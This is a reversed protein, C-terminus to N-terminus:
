QDYSRVFPKEVAAKAGAEGFWKTVLAPWDKSLPVLTFQGALHVSDEAKVSFEPGGGKNGRGSLVANHAVIVEADRREVAVDSPQDTVLAFGAGAADTLLAVEVERRNGQFRIDDRQLHHLGFDNLRDKGPYGANPGQGLWRFETASTALALGGELFTGTAHSPAFDYRVDLTGDARAVLVVDGEVFQEPTNPREYRGHVALRISGDRDTTSSVDVATPAALLAGTWISATKARLAEAETLKRGTHPGVGSVVVRGAPDLLSIAGTTRNVRLDYRSSQVRLEDATEKLQPAASKGSTAAVIQAGRAPADAFDLRIAQELVPTEGPVEARVVVSYVDSAATAPLKVEVKVAQTEHAAAIVGALPLTTQRVGNRMLTWSFQFGSLALFDHRNEFHLTLENTGPKVTATREALQIPSYVKRVEWYDAQPTRDSYVIGDMGQNTDTDYFHNADPMVYLETRADAPRSDARRLIGQDQFMWVAGGAYRPNTQMIEWEDQIRDSALGLAHAYETVIIPRTLKQAFDRLTRVEPYHPSYLDVFEPFKEYNRAFYSGVTPFTIPRTPDLRKVEHGTELQIPTIPNENGVSWVILSPHNKDRTVTARARTYLIEQYTPDTLHDDGFGFPVECMVYFGLEDCLEIFRPHPPYHSTRIFNINAAKMLQLDRRMLEETAVRGHEPWIDHHDVGHLKIPRGNLKFVGDTTTIERLGIKQSYQQLTKGDAVLALELRYLNPTEATWLAPSAVALTTSGHANEDLPFDFERVVAGSANSLKGRVTATGPTATVDLAVDAHGDAALTTRVTLDRVHQAPAAFLTVERYIGSLSWCDNTDFEWGKPRTSVQVALLNDADAKLADTIDFTVPNYSSAWTGVERGNVWATLGYLVGEFRLFVRQGNWGAPVRFTRRYLGLGAALTRGYKPEAFGELEWHAPVPISKWAATEAFATQFFEADGGLETGALYKFQWSGDLSQTAEKARVPLIEVPQAAATAVSVILALGLVVCRSPNLALM